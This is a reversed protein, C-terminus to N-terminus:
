CSEQFRTKEYYLSSTGDTILNVKLPTPHHPYTIITEHKGVYKVQVKAVAFQPRKFHPMENVKQTIIRLFFSPFIRLVTHRRSVM